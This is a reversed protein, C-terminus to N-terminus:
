KLMLNQFGRIQVVFITLSLFIDMIRNLSIDMIHYITQVVFLWQILPVASNNVKACCLEKIAETMALCVVYQMLPLKRADEMQSTFSFM